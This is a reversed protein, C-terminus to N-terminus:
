SLCLLKSNKHNIIKSWLENLEKEAASFNDANDSVVEIPYGRRNIMCFFAKLFSNVNHGYAMELYVLACIDSKDPGQITIFPKVFDVAIRAFTRLNRQKNM